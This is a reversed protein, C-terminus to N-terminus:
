AWDTVHHSLHDTMLKTTLKRDGAILADLIPQHEEASKVLAGSESLAKLGYQRSQDRLNEVIATLHDNELIDLLGIHFRRDADLYGVIDGKKACDVMDSAIKSFEQRRAAVKEKMSALRAMSPIEILLRLDYINRREKESLPVIRFGRNKVAEMLGQNVLTLMAERVPSNSVGLEAALSAASYIQGPALDGSILRLKLVELAQDRLNTHQLRNDM